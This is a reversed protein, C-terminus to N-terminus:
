IINSGLVPSQSPDFSIGGGAATQQGRQGILSSLIRLLRNVGAGATGGAAAGAPGGIATGIGAGIPALLGGLGAGLGGAIPALAGPRGGFYGIEETPTLGAGLMQMLNGFRQQGFQAEMAALTSALDTGGKALAERFGSSARAGLGGFREALGPVVEQQFTRMAREKIPAFSPAGAGLGALAQALVQQVGAEQEPAFRKIREFRSPTGTFFNAM